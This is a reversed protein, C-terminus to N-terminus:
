RSYHIPEFAANSRPHTRWAPILLGAIVSAILLKLVETIGYLAHLTAFRAASTPTDLQSTLSIMEPTVWFHQVVALLFLGGALSALLRRKVGFFFLGTLAISIAIQAIEWTVFFTQNAQGAMVRFLQRTHADQAADAIKFNETAVFMMFLSGLIWCGLLFSAIRHHM